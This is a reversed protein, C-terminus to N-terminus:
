REFESSGREIRPGAEGCAEEMDGSGASTAGYCRINCVDRTDLVPTSAMMLFTNNTDSPLIEFNSFLCLLKITM